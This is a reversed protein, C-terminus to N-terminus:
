FNRSFYRSVLYEIYLRDYSYQSSYVMGSNYYFWDLTPIGRKQGKCILSNKRLHLLIHPVLCIVSILFLIGQNGSESINVSGGSFVDAKLREFDQDSMLASEGEIGTSSTVEQNPPQHLKEQERKEQELLDELLLPQEKM